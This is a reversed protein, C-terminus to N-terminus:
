AFMAVLTSVLVLGLVSMGRAIMAGSKYPKELLSLIEDKVKKFKEIDFGTTGTVNKFIEMSKCTAKEIDKVLEDNLELKHEEFFKQAVDGDEKKLLHVTVCHHIKFTCESPFLEELSVQYHIKGEMSKKYYQITHAQMSKLTIDMERGSPDEVTLQVDGVLKGAPFYDKEKHPAVPAGVIERNINLLVQKVTMKHGNIVFSDSTVKFEIDKAPIVVKSSFGTPKSSPKSSPVKVISTALSGHKKVFDITVVNKVELLSKLCAENDARTAANKRIEQTFKKTADDNKLHLLYLFVLFTKM